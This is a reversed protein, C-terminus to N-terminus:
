TVEGSVPCREGREDDADSAADWCCFPEGDDEGEHVQQQSRREADDGAFRQFMGFLCGDKLRVSDGAIRADFAYLRRLGIGEEVPPLPLPTPASADGNAPPSRSFFPDDLSPDDWADRALDAPPSPEIPLLHHVPALMVPTVKNSIENLGSLNLPSASPRGPPPRSAAQQELESDLLDFWGDVAADAPPDTNHDGPAM